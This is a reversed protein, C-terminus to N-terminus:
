KGLDHARVVARCAVHSSGECVLGAQQLHPPPAQILLWAWALGHFGIAEWGISGDWAGHHAAFHMLGDGQHAGQVRVWADRCKWAQQATSTAAQHANVWSGMERGAGAGLRGQVEV